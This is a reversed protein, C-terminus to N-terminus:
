QQELKTVVFDDFTYDASAAEDWNLVLLGVVGSTLTDDAVSAIQQGDVYLTLSGNGCDAGVRYSDKGTAIADSTAWDDNNTLIVDDFALASEAIAYEGGATAVLYYYSDTIVQQHCLIGFASAPNEANGTVTAEIHVNEYAEESPTSWIIFNGQFVEMRLGGEWYSVSYEPDSGIGWNQDGEFNDELLAGGAGLNCALSTAVLAAIAFMGRFLKKNM